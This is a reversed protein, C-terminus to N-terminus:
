LDRRVMQNIEDIALGVNRAQFGTDKYTQFIASYDIGKNFDYGSVTGHTLEVASVDTQLLAAATADMWVFLLFKQLDLHSGIRHLISFFLQYLL